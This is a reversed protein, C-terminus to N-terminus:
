SSILVFRSTSLDCVECWDKVAEYASTSDRGVGSVILKRKKPKVLSRSGYGLSALSGMKVAPHAPLSSDSYSTDYYPNDELPTPTTAPPNLSLTSTTAVPASDLEQSPLYISSDMPSPPTTLNGSTKEKLEKEKKETTPSLLSILSM